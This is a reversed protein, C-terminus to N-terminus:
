STWVVVLPYRCVPFRYGLRRDQFVGRVYAQIEAFQRESKIARKIFLYFVFYPVQPINTLIRAYKQAFHDDIYTYEGYTNTIHTTVAIFSLLNMAEFVSKGEVRLSLNNGVIPTIHINKFYREMM